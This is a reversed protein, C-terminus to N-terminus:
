DHNSLGLRILREITQRQLEGKKAAKQAKDFLDSSIWVLREDDLGQEALKEKTFAPTRLMHIYSYLASIVALITGLVYSIRVLTNHDHFAVVTAV